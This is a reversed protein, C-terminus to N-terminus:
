EHVKGASPLWEIWLLAVSVDLLISIGPVPLVTVISLVAGVMVVVIGAFPAVPTVKFLLTIMFQFSFTSQEVILVVLIVEVLGLQVNNSQLALWATNVM